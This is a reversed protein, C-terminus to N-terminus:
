ASKKFQRQLKELMQQTRHLKRRLIKKENVNIHSEDFKSKSKVMVYLIRGLKNATAIILYIDAKPRYEEFTIACLPNRCKLKLEVYSFFPFQM